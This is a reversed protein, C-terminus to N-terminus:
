FPNRQYAFFHHIQGYSYNIQSCALVNDLYGNEEESLEKPMYKARKLQWLSDDIQYAYDTKLVINLIEEQTKEFTIKRPHREDEWLSSPYVISELSDYIYWDNKHNFKLWAHLYNKSARYGPREPLDIEGCIRYDTARMGMLAWGSLYYCKGGSPNYQNTAFPAIKNGQRIQVKSVADGFYQTALLLDTQMAFNLNM